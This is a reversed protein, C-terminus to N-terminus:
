MTEGLASPGTATSGFVSRSRSDALERMARPARTTRSTPLRTRRVVSAPFRRAGRDTSVSTRKREGVSRAAKLWSSASAMAFSTELYWSSDAGPPRACRRTTTARGRGCFDSGLSGDHAHLFYGGSAPRNWHFDHDGAAILGRRRTSRCFSLQTSQDGPERWRMSPVHACHSPTQSLVHGGGMLDHVLIA